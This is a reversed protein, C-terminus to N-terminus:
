KKSDDLKVKRQAAHGAEKIIYYYKL